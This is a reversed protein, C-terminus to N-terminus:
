ARSCIAQMTAGFVAVRDPKTTSVVIAGDRNRELADLLTGKIDTKDDQRLAAAIYGHTIQLPRGSAVLPDAEKGSLSDNTQVIRAISPMEGLFGTLRDSVAAIGYDGIRGRTQEDELWRLWGDGDFGGAAPEHLMLIDVHDRGLRRLSSEFSRKARVLDMDFVSRSLPRLKRGVAKRIATIADPQDAGGPFYLGVKTTVTADSYRKLLPALARESAGAGYLPATDFHTLGHEYAADILRQRHSAMGSRFLQATGFILRSVSVESGPVVTRMAMVM